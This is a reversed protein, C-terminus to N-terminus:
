YSVITYNLSKEDQLMKSFFLNLSFMKRFILNPFDNYM